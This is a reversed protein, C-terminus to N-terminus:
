EVEEQPLHTQTMMYFEYIPDVDEAGYKQIDELVEISISNSKTEGMYDIWLGVSDIESKDANAQDLLDKYMQDILTEILDETDDETIGQLSKQLIADIDITNYYKMDFNHKYENLIKEATVAKKLLALKIKNPRM